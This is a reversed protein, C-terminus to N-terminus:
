LDPVAAKIDPIAATIDPIAATLDPVNFQNLKEFATAIREFAEATRELAARTRHAQEREREETTWMYEIKPPHQRKDQQLEWLAAQLDNVAAKLHGNRFDERQRKLATYAKECEAAAQLHSCAENLKTLFYHRDM